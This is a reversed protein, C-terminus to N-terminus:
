GESLTFHCSLSDHKTNRSGPCTPAPTTSVALFVVWSGGFCHKWEQLALVIALLERNGVEYHRGGFVYPATQVKLNPNEFFFVLLFLIDAPADYGSKHTWHTLECVGCFWDTLQVPKTKNNPESLIHFLASDRPLQLLFLIKIKVLAYIM